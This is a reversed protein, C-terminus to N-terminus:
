IYIHILFLRTFKRTFIRIRQQSILLVRCLIVKIQRVRYVTDWFFAGVKIRYLEFNYRDIKIVNPLFTWFVRSYLKCYKYWYGWNCIAQVKIQSVKSQERNYKHPNSV